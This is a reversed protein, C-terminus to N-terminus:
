AQLLTEGTDKITVLTSGDEQRAAFLSVRGDPRRFIRLCPTKEGATVLEVAEARTLESVDHVNQKCQGCFRTRDDGHMADWGVPCPVPISIADLADVTPLPIM